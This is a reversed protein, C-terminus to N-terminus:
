CLEEDDDLLKFFGPPIYLLVSAGEPRSDVRRFNLFDHGVFSHYLPDVYHQYHQVVFCLSASSGGMKWLLNALFYKFQIM